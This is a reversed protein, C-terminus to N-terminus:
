APVRSGVGAVARRAIRRWVFAMATAGVLAGGLSAAAVHVRRDRALTAARVRWLDVPRTVRALVRDTFGPAPSELSRSLSGVAALVERYRALERACAPCTALHVEFDEVDHM